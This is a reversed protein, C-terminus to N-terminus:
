LLLPASLQQRVELLAVLLVTVIRAAIRLSRPLTVEIVLWRRTVTAASWRVLAVLAGTVLIPGLPNDSWATTFDGMAALRVARTGGCLPDMVGWWRHLPGHLDVPPLGIRAMLVGAALGTAAAPALVPWRDRDELVIRLSM